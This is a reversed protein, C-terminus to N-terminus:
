PVYTFPNQVQKTAVLHIDPDVCDPNNTYNNKLTLHTIEVSPNTTRCNVDVELCCWKYYQNNGSRCSQYTTLVKIRGDALLKQFRSIGYEKECYYCEATEETSSGLSSQPTDSTSTIINQCKWLNEYQRYDTCYETSSANRFHDM